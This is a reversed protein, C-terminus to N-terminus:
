KLSSNPNSSYQLCRKSFTGPIFIDLDLEKFSKKLQQQCLVKQKAQQRKLFLLLNLKKKPPPLNRTQKHFQFYVTFYDSPINMWHWRANFLHPKHHENIEAQEVQPTQARKAPETGCHRRFSGSWRQWPCTSIKQVSRIPCLAKWVRLWWVCILNDYLGPTLLPKEGGKEEEAREPTKQNIKHNERPKEFERISLPGRCAWARWLFQNCSIASAIKVKFSENNATLFNKKRWHLIRLCIYAFIEM